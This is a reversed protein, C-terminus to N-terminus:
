FSNRRVTEGGPIGDSSYGPLGGCLFSGDREAVEMQSQVQLLDIPVIAILKECYWCLATQAWSDLTAFTEGVREQRLDLMAFIPLELPESSCFEIVTRWCCKRSWDTSPTEKSRAISAGQCARVRFHSYFTGQCTPHVLPAIRRCCSLLFTFPIYFSHQSSLWWTNMGLGKTFIFFADIM